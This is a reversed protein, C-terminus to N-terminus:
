LYVWFSDMGLTDFTLIILILQDAKQSPMKGARWTMVPVITDISPVLGATPIFIAWVASQMDSHDVLTAHTMTKTGVPLVAVEVM